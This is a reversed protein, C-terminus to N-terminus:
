FFVMCKTSGKLIFNEQSLQCIETINKFWIFGKMGLFLYRICSWSLIVARSLFSCNHFVSRNIFLSCHSLKGCKLDGNFECDPLRERCFVSSHLIFVTIHKCKSARIECKSFYKESFMSFCVQILFGKTSAAWPNVDRSASCNISRQESRVKFLMYLGLKRMENQTLARDSNGSTPQLARRTRTENAVDHKHSAPKEATATILDFYRLLISMSRPMRTAIDIM